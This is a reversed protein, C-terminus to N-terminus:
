NGLSPNPIPASEDMPRAPVVVAPAAADLLASHNAQWVVATRCVTPQNPIIPCYTLEIARLGSSTGGSEFIERTFWEADIKESLTESDVHSVVYASRAVCGAGFFALVFGVALISRKM